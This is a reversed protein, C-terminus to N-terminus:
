LYLKKEEIYSLVRSPLWYRVSNRNRIRERIQSSSIDINPNTFFIIGRSERSLNKYKELAKPLTQPFGPRAGVAIKALLFIEEFKYWDMLDDLSDQGMLLYLEQEPSVRNFYQLTDITYSPPRRKLEVGSVTLFKNDEVALKIMEEREEGTVLPPHGKFPSQLAPVFIVQDLSLEERASEALLLHGLHIPDFSGGYIGIPRM